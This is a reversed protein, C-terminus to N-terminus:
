LALVESFDKLRCWGDKWCHILHLLGWSLSSSAVASYVYDTQFQPTSLEFNV